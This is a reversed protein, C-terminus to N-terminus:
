FALGWFAELLSWPYHLTFGFTIEALSVPRQGENPRSSTQYPQDERNRTQRHASLSAEYAEAVVLM